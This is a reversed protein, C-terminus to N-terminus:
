SKYPGTRLAKSLPLERVLALPLPTPGQFYLSKQADLSFPMSRVSLHLYHQFTVYANQINFGTGGGGGGGGGKAETTQM